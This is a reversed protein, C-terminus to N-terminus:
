YFREEKWNCFFYEEAYMERYQEGAVFYHREDGLQAM